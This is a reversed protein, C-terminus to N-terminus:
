VTVTSAVEFQALRVIPAGRAHFTVHAPLKLIFTYQLRFKDQPVAHIVFENQPYIFKVEV